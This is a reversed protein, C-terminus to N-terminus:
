RSSYVIVGLVVAVLTTAILLTRLRFRWRIWPVATFAGSLLALFWHPVTAISGLTHSGLGFGLQSIHIPPHLPKDRDRSAGIGWNWVENPWKTLEQGACTAITIQGRLSTVQLMTASTPQFYWRGLYNSNDTWSLLVFVCAIGWGVSWAIRLYRLTRSMPRVPWNM